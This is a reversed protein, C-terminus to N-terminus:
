NPDKYYEAKQNLLEERMYSEVQDSPKDRKQKWWVRVFGLFLTNTVDLIHMMLHKNMKEDVKYHEKELLEGQKESLKAGLFAFGYWNHGIRFGFRQTRYELLFNFHFM